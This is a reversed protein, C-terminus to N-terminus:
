KQYLNQAVCNEMVIQIRKTGYVGDVGDVRSVMLGLGVNGVLRESIM